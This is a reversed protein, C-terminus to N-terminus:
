SQKVRFNPCLKQALHETIGENLGRGIEKQGFIRQIGWWTEYQELESNYVWGQSQNSLAHLLEHIITERTEVSDFNDKLREELALTGDTFRWYGLNGKEHMDEYIIHKVIDFLKTRVEEISMVSQFIPNKELAPIITSDIFMNIFLKESELDQLYKEMETREEPSMTGAAGAEGAVYKDEM